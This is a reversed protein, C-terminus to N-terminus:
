QLGNENLFKEIENKESPNTFHGQLKKSSKVDILYKIKNFDDEDDEDEGEDDSFPANVDVELRTEDESKRHQSPYGEDIPNSGLVGDSFLNKM